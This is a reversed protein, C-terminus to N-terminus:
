AIFKARLEKSALVFLSVHHSVCIYYCRPSIDGDCPWSSMLAASRTVLRPRLALEQDADRGDERAPQAAAAM